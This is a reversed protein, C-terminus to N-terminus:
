CTQGIWIVWDVLMQEADGPDIMRGYTKMKAAYSGGNGDFKLHVVLITIKVCM